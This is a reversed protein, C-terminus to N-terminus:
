KPSKVTKKVRVRDGPKFVPSIQETGGVLELVSYRVWYTGSKKSWFVQVNLNHVDDKDIQFSLSFLFSLTYFDTLCSPRGYMYM